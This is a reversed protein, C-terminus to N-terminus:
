QGRDGFERTGTARLGDDSDAQQHFLLEQDDITGSLACGIERYHVSEQETEPRQKKILAMDLPSGNNDSWRRQQFEM